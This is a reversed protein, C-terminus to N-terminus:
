LFQCYKGAIRRLSWLLETVAAIVAASAAAECGTGAGAMGFFLGGGASAKVVSPEVTM